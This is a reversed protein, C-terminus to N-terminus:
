ERPGFAKIDSVDVVKDSYIERFLKDGLAADLMEVKKQQRLAASKDKAALYLSGLYYQVLPDDPKLTVAMEFEAIAKKYEKLKSYAFGLYARIYYDNPNLERSCELAPIARKYEEAAICARGMNLQVKVENPALKAAETLIECAYSYREMLSLAVGLQNLALLDNPRLKTARRFFEAAREYDKAEYYAYGLDYNYDPNDAELAAAKSLPEISARVDGSTLKKMGESYLASAQNEVKQASVTFAFFLIFAPVISLPYRM